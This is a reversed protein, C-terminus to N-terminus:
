DPAKGTSKAKKYIMTHKRFQMVPELDLLHKYRSPVKKQAQKWPELIEKTLKDYMISLQHGSMCNEIDEVM